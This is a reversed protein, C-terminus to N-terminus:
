VILKYVQKAYVEQQAHFVLHSNHALSISGMLVNLKNPLVPRVFTRQLASMVLSQPLLIPQVEKEVFLGLLANSLQDWLRCDRALASTAQLVTM